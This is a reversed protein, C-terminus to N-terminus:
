LPAPIPPVRACGALGQLISSSRKRRRAIARCPAYWDECACVRTLVSARSASIESSHQERRSLILRAPPSRGPGHCGRPPRPVLGSRAIGHGAVVAGSAFVL